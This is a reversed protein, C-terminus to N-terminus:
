DRNATVVAEVPVLQSQVTSLASPQRMKEALACGGMPLLMFLPAMLWPGWIPALGGLLGAKGRAGLGGSMSKSRLPEPTAANPPLKKRTLAFSEVM